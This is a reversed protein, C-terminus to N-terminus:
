IADTIHRARWDCSREEGTERTGAEHGCRGCDGRARSARATEMREAQRRQYGALSRDRM